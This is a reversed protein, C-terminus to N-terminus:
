KNCSLSSKFWVNWRKSPQYSLKGVNITLEGSIEDSYAIGLKKGRSDKFLYDSAFAFYKKALHDPNNENIFQALFLGANKGNNPEMGHASVGELELVLDGNDIHSRGKLGNLIAFDRYRQITETHDQGIQLVAKAYDPVMNYRRGSEFSLVKVKFDEEQQDFAPINRYIIDFDSIGKEAFIIPFDADPAFGITPMEEHQFYHNVCRWESEEDTGIIMRVRKELPM